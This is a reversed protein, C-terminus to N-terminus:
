WNRTSLERKADDSAKLIGDVLSMTATLVIIAEPIGSNMITTAVQGLGAKALTADTQIDELSGMYSDIAEKNM